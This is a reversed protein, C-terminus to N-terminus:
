RLHVEDLSLDFKSFLPFVVYELKRQRIDPEGNELRLSDFREALSGM